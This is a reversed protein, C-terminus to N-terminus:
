EFRSPIIDRMLALQTGQAAATAKFQAIYRAALPDAKPLAVRMPDQHQGGIKFEYHL